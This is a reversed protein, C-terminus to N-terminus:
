GDKKSSKLLEIIDSARLYERSTPATMKLVKNALKKSREYEEQYFYVEGLKGYARSLMFYAVVDNQEATAQKLLSIASNLLEKDAPGKAMNIKVAALEIKFIKDKPLYQLAKQYYQRADIFKGNEFYYQGKLEWLYPNNPEKAIVQDLLLSAKDLQGSRFYGISLAYDNDRYKKIVSNPNNLFADLKTAIRKFEFRTQPTINDSFKSLKAKISNEVSAIREASLPHTISYPNIDYMRETNSLYKFLKILGQGNNQTKYLLNVAIKDAETEHMRSYSLMNQRATTTSATAIAVGADVAGALISALGLITGGIAVKNMNDMEHRSAILHGAYIHAIEHAMVGYLINPDDAFKIILGTNIFVNSGGAVFANISPDAVIRIVLNSPKLNAAKILPTIFDKIVNETEADGIINLKEALSTSSFFLWCCFIIKKM